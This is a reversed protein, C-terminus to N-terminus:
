LKGPINYYGCVDQTFEILQVRIINTAIDSIIDFGIGPVFLITDELDEILGTTVAESRSLAEWVREALGQNWAEDGRM